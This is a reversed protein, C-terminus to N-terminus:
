DNKTYTDNIKYLISSLIPVLILGTNDLNRTSEIFKLDFKTAKFYRKAVFNARFYM